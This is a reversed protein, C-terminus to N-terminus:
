NSIPTARGLKCESAAESANNKPIGRREMIRIGWQCRFYSSNPCSKVSINVGMVGPVKDCSVRTTHRYHQPGRVHLMDGAWSLVQGLGKKVIFIKEGSGRKGYSDEM